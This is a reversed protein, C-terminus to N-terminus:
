HSAPTPSISRIDIQHTCRATAPRPLFTCMADSETVWIMVPANDAMNRFRAESERLADITDSRFRAMKVHSEVRALLERASFPKILYDDAGAQMGEVRSEEGARASILIIPVASTQQDSRLQALLQIGDIRPMM